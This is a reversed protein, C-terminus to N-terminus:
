RAVEVARSERIVVVKIQGPYSLTEEIRGVIDRALVTAQADDVRDPSVMVRMERGAQIAYCREVGDFGRAVEELAELRQIYREVSDHRAGPRAASIADAAAVVFSPVTTMERDHHERIATQIARSVGYKSVIDAGIEAHPGEIEHTFGKGVDTCSAPWRACTSTLAWRPPSSALFFHCKM